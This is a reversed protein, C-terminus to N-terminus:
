ITRKGSGAQKEMTPVVRLSTCREGRRLADISGILQYGTAFPVDWEFFAKTEPAYKSLLQRIVGGHTVVVANAANAHMIHKIVHQWGEDIREVFRPFSEGNPPQNVFPDSLWDRYAQNNKLQNYTQGEFIGFNIEKLSPLEIMNQQPFLLTATRICRAMPSTLILEYSDYNASLRKVEKEGRESLSADTWGIYTKRENEKTLGHRLLSIAVRHDM